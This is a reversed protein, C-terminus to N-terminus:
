VDLMRRVYNRLKDVQMFEKQITVIEDVLVKLTSLINNCRCYQYKNAISSLIKIQKKGYYHFVFYIFVNDKQITGVYEYTDITLKAYNGISNELIEHTIDNSLLEIM